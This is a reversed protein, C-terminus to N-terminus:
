RSLLEAAVKRLLEQAEFPKWLVAVQPGTVADLKESDAFGTVLVVPLTPISRRAGAPRRRRRDHRADRFRGGASRAAAAPGLSSGSAGDASGGGDRGGFRLTDALSRPGACRRRGARDHLGSLDTRTDARADDGVIARPSAPRSACSCLTIADGARGRERDDLAGGSQRAVGFAMALGMGTGKGVGKTTFFPEVARARVEPTM